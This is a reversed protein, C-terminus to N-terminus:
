KLRDLVKFTIDLEKDGYLVTDGARDLVYSYKLEKALTEIVKTIKEKVPKFLEAQTKLLIEQVQQKYEAYDQELKQLETQMQTIEADLAKVQEPTLNGAQVQKQADEYKTKLAEAKTKYENEKATLTDIYLKQLDEIQKQVAQAEPLQKIIADSDVFAIKLQSFATSCAIFSIAAAAILRTKM